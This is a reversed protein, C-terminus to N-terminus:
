ERNVTFEIITHSCFVLKLVSESEPPDSCDLDSSKQISEEGSGRLSVVLLEGNELLQPLSHLDYPIISAQWAEVGVAASHLYPFRILSNKERIGPFHDHSFANQM